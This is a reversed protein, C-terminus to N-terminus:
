RSTELMCAATERIRIGQKEKIGPLLFDQQNGKFKFSTKLATIPAAAFKTFTEKAVYECVVWRTYQQDGIQLPVSEYDKATVIEVPTDTGLMISIRSGKPLKDTTHQGNNMGVGIMYKPGEQRLIFTWGGLLPGIAQQCNRVTHRTFPDAEEYVGKCKQQAAAPAATLSAALLTLPLLTTFLHKM